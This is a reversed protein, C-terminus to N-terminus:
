LFGSWQACSLQPTCSMSLVCSVLAVPPMFPHFLVLLNNEWQRLAAHLHSTHAGRYQLSGCRPRAESGRLSCSGTRPCGHQGRLALARAPAGGKAARPWLVRADGASGSGGRGEVPPASGLSPVRTPRLRPPYPPNPRPLRLRSRRLRLPHPPNPRPLRLRPRAYRQSTAGLRGWHQGLAARHRM